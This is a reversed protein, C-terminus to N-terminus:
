NQINMVYIAAEAANEFAVKTGDANVSPTLPVLSRSALLTATAGTATDMSMLTSGTFNEGNDRVITYVITRSDPLWAPHSGMGLARLGSGDAGIIWMGQGPIQFAIATGDPSLAPNIVTRGAFRALAPATAAAGAPDSTMLAYLGAATASVPEASTRAVASIATARGGAVDYRRMQHRGTAVTARGTISRSDASWCMKYGTGADASVARLGSGDANAVLIGAYNDTTVALMSGDPSWVPAMLGVRSELLKVPESAARAQGFGPLACLASM